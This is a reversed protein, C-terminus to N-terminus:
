DILKAGDHGLLPDIALTLGPFQASHLANQSDPDQKHYEDDRLVLWDLAKDETRWILYERVGARRYVRLKDRLDIAVSSAAIEVILEPPGHLYGKADIRSRGGCESLLRLLADPQEVNDADLRITANAAVRTGPTQAAYYGLWTQILADPEAHLELRVPSPMYVIGEILEAKKLDAMAEYRRLFEAASLQHGSELPPVPILSKHQRQKAAPRTLMTAM